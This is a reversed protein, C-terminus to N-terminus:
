RPGRDLTLVAEALALAAPTHGLNGMAISGRPDMAAPLQPLASVATALSDLREHAEEWRGVRALATM